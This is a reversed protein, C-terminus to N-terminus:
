HLMPISFGSQPMRRNTNPKRNVLLIPDYL